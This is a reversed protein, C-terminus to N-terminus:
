SEVALSAGTVQAQELLQTADQVLRPLDLEPGGPAGVVAGIVRPPFTRGVATVPDGASVASVIRRAHEAAATRETYPMVVLFRDNDLETAIDNDRLAHVLANGARARLIGRLGPPPPPPAVDVMFMAVALPHGFRRARELERQAAQAFAEAALLGAPERDPDGDLDLDMDVDVGGDVDGGVVEVDGGVVEVDSGDVPADGGDIPADGGVVEVDSGDIPADGGVVEVDGGVVEVDSGVVEVDSGDVQADLDVTVRAAPPVAIPAPAPDAPPAAPAPRRHEVLRTAALLIPALREVDHPRVTALDAGAATSRRAAELASATWAAIVVPRRGGLGAALELLPEGGPMGVLMADVEGVAFRLKDVGDRGAAGIVVTHGAAVIAGQAAALHPAAELVLLRLRPTAPEGEPLDAVELVDDDDIRQYRDTPVASPSRRATDERDAHTAGRQKTRRAPKPEAKADRVEAKADRAEAKADPKAEPKGKAESKGESKGEPRADSRTSARPPRATM